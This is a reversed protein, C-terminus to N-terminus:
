SVSFNIAGDSEQAWEADSVHLKKLIEFNWFKVKKSRVKFKIEIKKSLILNFPIKATINSNYTSIPDYFM